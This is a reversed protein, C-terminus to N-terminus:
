WHDDTYLDNCVKAYYSAEQYLAKYAIQIAIMEKPKIDLGAGPRLTNYSEIFDGVDYSRLLVAILETYGDDDLGLKKIQPILLNVNQILRDGLLTVMKAKTDDLETYVKEPNTYNQEVGFIQKELDQLSPGTVTDNAKRDPDAAIREKWKPKPRHSEGHDDTQGDKAQDAPGSTNDKQYPAVEDGSLSHSPVAGHADDILVDSDSVDVGDSFGKKDLDKYDSKEDQIVPPNEEAASGAADVAGVSVQSLTSVFSDMVTAADQLDVGKKKARKKDRQRARDKARGTVDKVHKFTETNNKDRDKEAGEMDTTSKDAPEDVEVQPGPVSKKNKIPPSYRGTRFHMIMSIGCGKNVRGRIAQYFDENCFVYIQTNDTAYKDIMLLMHEYMDTDPMNWADIIECQDGLRTFVRSFRDPVVCRGTKYLIYHDYQRIYKSFGSVDGGIWTECQEYEAIYLRYVLTDMLM